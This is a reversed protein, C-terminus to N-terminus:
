ALSPEVLRHEAAWVGVRTRSAFGLKNLIHVLHAAVTRQTIVLREAIQGNTLGQAVLAGVERERRTLRDLASVPEPEASPNRGFATAEFPERAYRIAEELPMAHGIKWAAAAVAASLAARSIALWRELMRQWTPPLPGGNAERLTAGAGALCVAREHEGLAAALGSLGELSYALLNRDGFEKGVQIAHVLLSRAEPYAGQELAVGAMTVGAM